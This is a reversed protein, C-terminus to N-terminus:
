AICAEKLLASIYFKINEKIIKIDEQAFDDQGLRSLIVSSFIRPSNIQSVVFLIKFITKRDDISSNFVAAILSTLYKFVQSKEFFFSKQQEKILFLILEKSINGSYFFDIFKNLIFFLHDIQEKKTMKAFDRNFDLFSKAYQTQREILNNIIGQYLEQKGGWYYSIMCLNANAEKCIQRISTGEVGQVAFLRTAAELIRVKSNEDKNQVM